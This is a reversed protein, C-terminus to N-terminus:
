RIICTYFAKAIYVTPLSIFLVASYLTISTHLYETCHTLATLPQRSVFQVTQSALASGVSVGVDDSIEQVNMCTSYSYMHNDVLVLSWVQIFVEDVPMHFYHKM